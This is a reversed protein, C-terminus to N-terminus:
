FITSQRWACPGSRDASSRSAIGPIPGALTSCSRSRTVGHAPKAFRQLSAPRRRGECRQSGPKRSRVPDRQGPGCSHNSRDRGSSCRKPELRVHPERERTRREDARAEPPTTETQVLEVLAKEGRSEVLRCAGPYDDGARRALRWERHSDRALNAAEATNGQPLADQELKRSPTRRGFPGHELESRARDGRTPGLGAEVLSPPELSPSDM